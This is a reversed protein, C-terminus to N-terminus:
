KLAFYQNSTNVAPTRNLVFGLDALEGSNEEVVPKAVVFVTTDELPGEVAEVARCSDFFGRDAM